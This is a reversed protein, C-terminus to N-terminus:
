ACCASATKTPSSPWRRATRTLQSRDGGPFKVQHVQNTDGFRTSILLSRETPHWDQLSATRFETYRITTAVVAAPICPVGDTVLNDSPVIVAPPAQAPLLAPISIIAALVAAFCLTKM